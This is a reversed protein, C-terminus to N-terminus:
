DCSHNKSIISVEEPGSQWTSARKQDTTHWILRIFAAVSSKELGCPFGTDSERNLQQSVVGDSM